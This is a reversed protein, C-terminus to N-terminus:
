VGQLLDELVLLFRLNMARTGVTVRVADPMGYGRLDRVLIGKQRLREVIPAADNPLRVLVFNAQSPVVELGLQILRRELEVRGDRVLRRSREFHEEDGLAALAAAQAVSGVNFAQRVADMHYVLAADTIAYGVRLGALGHAKSFSKLVVLRPRGKFDVVGNPFDVATAFDGYAEDLVVIVSRPVRALFAALHRRPLYTGTPNNPNAIFVLKTRRDVLAAMGALDYRHHRLPALLAERGYSLATLRYVVFSPWGTVITEGPSVFTRVLLDILEYSGNGVVIQAPTVGHRDALAARLSQAGGDPYRHAAGLAEIAATRAKPSPGLANENASLDLIDGEDIGLEEALESRIKPPRFPAVLGIESSVM